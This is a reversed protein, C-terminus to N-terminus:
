IEASRPPWHEFDSAAPFSDPSRPPPQAESGCSGFSRGIKRHLQRDTWRCERIEVRGTSGHLM